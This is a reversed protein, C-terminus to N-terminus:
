RGGHEAGCRTSRDDAITAYDTFESRGRAWRTCEWAFQPCPLLYGVKHAANNGLWAGLSTWDSGAGHREIPQIYKGQILLSPHNIKTLRLDTM